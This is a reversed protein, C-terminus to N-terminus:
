KRMRPAKQYRKQGSYKRHYPTSKNKEIMERLESELEMNKKQAEKIRSIAKAKKKAWYFRLVFLVVALIALILVSIGIYIWVM